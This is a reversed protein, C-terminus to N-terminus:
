RTVAKGAGRPLQTGSISEILSTKGSSQDGIVCIGPLDVGLSDPLHRRVADFDDLVPGLRKKHEKAYTSSGLDGVHSDFGNGQVQM